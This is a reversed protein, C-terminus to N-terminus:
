APEAQLTLRPQAAVVPTLMEAVIERMMPICKGCKPTTGLSRHMEDGCGANAANARIQRETIRNCLCVIM